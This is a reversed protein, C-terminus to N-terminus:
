NPRSDKLGFHFLFKTHFNYIFTILATIYNFIKVTNMTILERPLQLNIVILCSQNLYM